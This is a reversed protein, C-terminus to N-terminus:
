RCEGAIAEEKAVRRRVAATERGGCRTFSATICTPLVPMRQTENRHRTRGEGDSRVIKGAVFSLDIILVSYRGRRPGYLVGAGRDEEARLNVKFGSLLPRMRSSVMGGAVM